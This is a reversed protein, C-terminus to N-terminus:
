RFSLLHGVRLSASSLPIDNQKAMLTLTILLVSVLIVVRNVWSLLLDLLGM